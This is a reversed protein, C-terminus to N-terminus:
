LKHGATSCCYPMTRAGISCGCHNHVRCDHRLPHNRPYRPLGLIQEPQLRLFKGGYINVLIVEVRPDRLIIDFAKVMTTTTAQGGADLFNASKGGYYSIADNTAMALGAGNVVNGINGDLRVYVLGSGEAEIEAADEHTKDRLAFLEPQRKTAADDFSFNADLCIFEGKQDRVLPNMELFTADKHVFIGYLRKLLDGMKESSRSDLGLEQSVRSVIEPTIGVTYEVPLKIPPETDPEVLKEDDRGGHKSVILAPGYTSRNITIALYYEDKVEVPETVYLKDVKLPKGASQETYLQHGLM